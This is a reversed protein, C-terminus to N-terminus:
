KPDPVVWSAFEEAPVHHVKEAESRRAEALGAHQVRGEAEALAARVQVLRKAEALLGGGAAAPGAVGGKLLGPPLDAWDEDLRDFRDGFVDSCVRRGENVSVYDGLQALAKALGETDTAVPSNSVFTHYRCGIDPLIFRNILHDEKGREGAFVQREAYALAADATARNVDAADGRLLKPLRFQNGVALANERQYELFLGDKQANLEKIEIRVRSGQAGSLAGQAPEAELVLVSHFNDRGKINEKIYQTIREAAGKALTGGSVLVALPPVAKNDFYTVNVEEAARNGLVALMAGVWRPVGYATTPSAVKFHLVETAPRVGPEKERLEAPSAYVEGTQSSVTREDGLEKFYAVFTGFVVQVFRRFRRRVRYRRYSLASVKRREQTEVYCPDARLLRMSVSPVQVIQCVCGENDRIVEWYANGTVELDQRTRERLEVFSTEACVNEFFQEVRLREIRMRAKLTALEADVDADDVDSVPEGDALKELVLADRVKERADSADPDVTPELRFGFGSINTCYADVNPRLATSREFRTVLARPDYPPPIAGYQTFLKLDDETTPIANSVNEGADIVTAKVVVEASDQDEAM